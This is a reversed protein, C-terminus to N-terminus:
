MVDLWLDYTLCYDTSHNYNQELLKLISFCILLFCFQKRQKFASNSKVKIQNFTNLFKHDYKIIFPIM